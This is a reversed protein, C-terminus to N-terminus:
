IVIKENNKLEELSKLFEKLFDQKLLTEDPTKLTHM